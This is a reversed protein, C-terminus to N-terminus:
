RASLEASATQYGHLWAHGPAFSLVPRYDNAETADLVADTSDDLMVYREGLKVMLLAHDAGRVLDHAITLLMDERRIGAAALLQMKVLAIDECDGKGLRLTRNAGAWYDARGFLQQDEVYTVHHNVWANVRKLATEPALAAAGLVQRSRAASLRDDQVRAWDRDFMTHGIALRKSGLVDGPSALPRQPLALAARPQPRLWQLCAANQLTPGAAPTLPAVEPDGIAITTTDPAPAPALQGDQEMRIRDLESPAGLIASAKSAPALAATNWSAAPAPSADCSVAFAASVAMPVTLVGAQAASPTLCVSALGALTGLAIGRLTLLIRVGEL